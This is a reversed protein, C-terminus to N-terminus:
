TVAATRLLGVNSAPSGMGVDTFLKVDVYIVGDNFERIIVVNFESVTSM